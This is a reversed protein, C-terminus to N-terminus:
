QQEYPNCPLGAGQAGEQADVFVATTRAPVSFTATAEDFSATQVVADASGALAPHLAFGSAGEITVTQAEDNANFIALVADYTPDIDSVPNPCNSGDTIGMAILGPVQEAGGAFFTLRRQVDAETRLRFLVSSRRVALLERMHQSVANIDDASPRIVSSELVVTQYPWNNRNDGVQPLGRAFNSTMGTWDITNHWDGSNYSNRDMSKSRLLDMGAHFFPVGQSLAVVSIGMNQVRARDAMSLDLPNKYNSIDFLTENDHKEVYTVVEEPDSTYGAPAGGYPITEGTRVFGTRDLFRYRRLAGALGVRMADGLQAADTEDAAPNRSAVGEEFAKPDNPAYALGNLWGQETVHAIGSDFPGGGRAADRLRDSFTGIGTNDLTLQTANVGRSAGQGGPNWGEGYVYVETGDIGDVAPTLSDLAARLAVMHSKLHYGMLDFRFADLKYAKAWFVVSDIMLKEMMRNETATDECCTEKVVFGTVADLRHYYWPVVKDLVSRPGTGSANTHNYVVDLASRLGVDALSQVMQRFELVRQAGMPETSYSGEPASYHFPDYGWNFGDLDRMYGIIEQPAEAAPGYSALVDRITTTGHEDCLAQPVTALMCLRDFGDSIEVRNTPDEDITAIDFAPLLHIHTLGANGLEILHNMGASLQRGATGNYQFATFKGRDTEGVTSDGISFDRVHLEYISIDEPADLQPKQLSDWGAPKTAPDTMVDIIQTHTSNTSLSTSYPDTVSFTEVNRTTPHYVTVEYRYYGGTWAADLDRSWVGTSDDRTMDVTTTEALSADFIQLRVNQATPAWVRVAATASSFDLGLPGDYSYLADLAGPTQVQTAEVVAGNVDYALAVIQGRLATPVDAIKTADLVFARFDRLHPKQTQVEDSLTEIETLAIVEGGTVETGSLAIDASASYRLEFTEADDARVNWAITGTAVLHARADTITTQGAGLICGSRREPCTYVGDDQTEIFFQNGDEDTSLGRDVAPDKSADDGAQMIFCFDGFPCSDQSTGALDIVYYAGLEPDIGTAMVRDPWSFLPAATGWTYVGYEGYMGDDRLYYMVLQDATPIVPPPTLRGTRANQWHWVGNDAVMSLDVAIPTNPEVASGDTLQYTFSQAGEALPIEFVAGFEDIRAVSVSAEDVDGTLSVTWGAYTQETLPGARHYHLGFPEPSAPGPDPDSNDSCATAAAFGVIVFLPISFRVM